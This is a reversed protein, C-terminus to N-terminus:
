NVLMGSILLSKGRGFEGDVLSGTVDILIPSSTRVVESMKDAAHGKSHTEDSKLDHGQTTGSAYYCCRLTLPLDVLVDM